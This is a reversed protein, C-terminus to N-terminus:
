KFLVHVIGMAPIKISKPSEEINKGSPDCLYIKMPENTWDFKVIDIDNSPNYLRLLIAKEGVPKISSIITTNSICKFNPTFVPEFRSSAVPILPQCQEVGWKETQVPDFERHPYISYRFITEGSQSAKYNTEWYNNMIYSIITQTEPVERVWGYDIEDMTINDLEILPADVSIWSIGYNENSVDVWRNCSFFNKNSGPLQEKEPQYYNWANSIRVKGDPINFPFALHVGEPTLIDSKDITNIIDIRNIGKITRIERTLSESGPADSQIIYSKVIPGNEKIRIDPKSNSQPNEPMRGEVYYYDNLGYFNESSAFNFPYDRFELKDIAGTEEAFDIDIHNHIYFQDNTEDGTQHERKKSKEFYFRKAGFAPIKEAIFALQGTSLRQSQIFKGSDDKIRDGRLYYGKPLIVLDTRKWSSSNYVDVCTVTEAFDVPISEELLQKSQKDADEAFSKKTEWQQLTFEANPESISNWSGWTHESYLMVNQWAKDFREEPFTEPNQLAWFTEAQTLREASSRNMATERASSGAGDEWYGTFDGKVVPLQDGYKEEFLGFSESVTSIIIKPSIYKENWSKVIDPLFRDPPGNDSGINYRMTVIDYPYQNDRLENMYDFILQEKLKNRLKTYALGTHFDSYGRGHLWCLIKEEGSASEWYFPKDGCAEIINGIRHFTNTGISFYKIGSQAMVPVIGWTYGPIDSIMASSVDVGCLKGVEIASQMMRYLEEPRCLGTLINAYLGDLEVWGNRVAEIFAKKEQNNANKIYSDVAWMVETNWRFQSGEPYDKTKNAYEIADRLNQWQIQEVEEQVHTYGIDNHSHPLLYITRQTVPNITIVEQSYIENYLKTETEFETAKEVMPVKIRFLNFGLMLPFSENIYGIRIDIQGPKDFHLVDIRVLQYDREEGKVIAQEEIFKVGPIAHYKFIMFWSRSNATEGVVKIKFNKGPEYNSKPIKLFMYGFLDGYKDFMIGKFHLKIGNTGKLDWNMNLTDLPNRFTFQLEDDIFMKFEHNDEANVDIGAIWIFEVYDNNINESVPLTEWEIFKDEHISRVLLASDADPQQCEYKITEGKIESAYGSLYQADLNQWLLICLLNATFLRLISTM